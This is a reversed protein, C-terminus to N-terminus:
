NSKKKQKRVMAWYDDLEDDLMKKIASTRTKDVDRRNKGVGRWTLPRAPSASAARHVLPASDPLNANEMRGPESTARTRSNARSTKRRIRAFRRRVSARWQMMSGPVRPPRGSELRERLVRLREELGPLFLSAAIGSPLCGIEAAPVSAKTDISVETMSAETSTENTWSEAHRKAEAPTELM